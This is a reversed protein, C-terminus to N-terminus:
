GVSNAYPENAAFRAILFDLKQDLLEQRQAQLEQANTISTLLAVIQDIPDSTVQAPDPGSLQILPMLQTLQETIAKGQEFLRRGHGVTLPALDPNSIERENTM